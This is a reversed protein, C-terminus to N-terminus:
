AAGGRATQARGYLRAFSRDTAGPSRRRVAAQRAARTGVDARHRVGLRARRRAGPARQAVGGSREGPEALTRPHLGPRRTLGGAAWGRRFGVGGPTAQSTPTERGLRLRRRSDREA